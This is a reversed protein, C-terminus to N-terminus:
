PTAGTPPLLSAQRLDTTEQTQRGAEAMIRRIQRETLGFRTALEAQTECGDWRAVIEENRRLVLWSLCRPVDLAGAGIASALSCAKELGIARVIRDSSKPDLSVLVRTGGCHSVLQIAADFGIAEIVPQMSRTLTFRDEIATM